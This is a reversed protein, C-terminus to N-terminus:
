KIVFVLASRTMVVVGMLIWAPISHQNVMAYYLAVPILIDTYVSIKNIASLNLLKNKMM